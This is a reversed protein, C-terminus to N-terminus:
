FTTRPVQQAYRRSVVSASFSICDPSYKFDNDPSYGLRPCLTPVTQQFRNCFQSIPGALIGVSNLARPVLVVSLLGFIHL